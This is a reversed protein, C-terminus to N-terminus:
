MLMIKKWVLECVLAGLLVSGVGTGASDIVGRKFESEEKVLPLIYRLRCACGYM